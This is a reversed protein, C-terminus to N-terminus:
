KKRNIAYGLVVGLILFILAILAIVIESTNLNRENNTPIINSPTNKIPEQNPKTNELYIPSLTASSEVLPVESKLYNAVFSKDKVNANIIHLSEYIYGGEFCNGKTSLLLAIKKNLSTFAYGGFLFTQDASCGSVPFEGILTDNQYVQATFLTNIVYNDNPIKKTQPNTLEIRINNQALSIQTLDKFGKTVANIETFVDSLSLGESQNCSIVDSVELSVLSIKKLIPLCGRGGESQETYYLSADAPNYKLSYVYTPGGVTAHAKRIGFSM